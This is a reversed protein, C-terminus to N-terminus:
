WDLIEISRKIAVFGYGWLIPLWVPMFGFLSNRQFVEVGTSIFIFEFIVMMVLGFFFFLVDNKSHKIVLSVIIIVLYILSLWYDNPILPILGIMILIPVINQIIERIKKM